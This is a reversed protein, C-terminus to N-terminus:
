HSLESHQPHGLSVRATNLSSQNDHMIHLGAHAMHHTGPLLPCEHQGDPCMELGANTPQIHATFAQRAYRRWQKSLPLHKDAALEMSDSVLKRAALEARRDTSGRIRQEKAVLGLSGVFMDRTHRALESDKIGQSSYYVLQGNPMCIALVALPEVLAKRRLRLTLRQAAVAPAAEAPAATPEAREPHTAAASVQDQENSPGAEAPAAQAAAPQRQAEVTGEASADAALYQAAWNEKSFRSLFRDMSDKIRKIHSNARKAVSTKYIRRQSPDGTQVVEDEEAEIQATPDEAEAAAQTDDSSSKDSAYRPRLSDDSEDDLAEESARSGGSDRAASM